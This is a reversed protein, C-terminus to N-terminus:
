VGVFRVPDSSPPIIFDIPGAVIGLHKYSRLRIYFPVLFKNRAFREHKNVYDRSFTNLMALYAVEGLACIAAFEAMGGLFFLVMAMNRMLFKQYGGDNLRLLAQVGTYNAWLRLDYLFDFISRRHSGGVLRFAREIEHELDEIHRGPERPYSAYHFKLYDPHIPIYGQSPTQSTMNFPYFVLRGNAKGLLNSSFRRAVRRHGRTDVTHDLCLAICSLYEYASYYSQVLNWSALGGSGPGSWRSIMTGANLYDPHLPDSRVAENLWGKILHYEVRERAVAPDLCAKACDPQFNEQVFWQFATDIRHRKKKVTERDSYHFKLLWCFKDLVNHYFLYDLFEPDDDLVLSDVSDETIFDRRKLFEKETDLSSHWM